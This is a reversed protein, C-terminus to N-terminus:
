LNGDHDFEKRMTRRQKRNTHGLATLLAKTVAKAAYRKRRKERPTM